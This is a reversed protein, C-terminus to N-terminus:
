VIADLAELVPQPIQYREVKLVRSSFTLVSAKTSVRVKSTDWQYDPGIRDYNDNYTVPRIKLKTWTPMNYGLPSKGEIIEMVKGYQLGACRGLAHGYIIFDGPKLIWGSKDTFMLETM